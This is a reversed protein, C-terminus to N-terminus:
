TCGGWFRVGPLPSCQSGEVFGFVESQSRYFFEARGNLHTVVIM